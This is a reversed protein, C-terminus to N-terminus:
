FWSEVEEPTVPNYTNQVAAQITAISSQVATMADNLADVSSQTALDPKGSIEDWSVDEMDAIWEAETGQYGNAVAIEYASEGDPIDVTTTTASGNDDTWGFTIRTAGDIKETNQITCNKGAKGSGGSGGAPLVLGANAIANVTSIKM